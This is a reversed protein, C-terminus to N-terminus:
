SSSLQPTIREAEHWLVLELDANICNHVVSSVTLQDDSYYKTVRGHPFTEVFDALIGRRSYYHCSWVDHVAHDFM